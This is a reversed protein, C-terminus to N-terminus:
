NWNGGTDDDDDGLNVDAGLDTAEGAARRAAMEREREDRRREWELRKRDDDIRVTIFKIVQENLRLRRELEHPLGADECAYELIVYRGERCKRVEYALKRRGWDESKLMEGQRDLIAQSFTQTLATVGDDPIEPNAIFITEYRRM